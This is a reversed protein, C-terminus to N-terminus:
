ASLRSDDIGPNRAPGAQPAKSGKPRAIAIVANEDDKPSIGWPSSKEAHGSRLTDVLKWSIRRTTRWRECMVPNIPDHLLVPYPTLEEALSHVHTAVISQQSVHKSAEPTVMVSLRRMFNDLTRELIYRSVFM